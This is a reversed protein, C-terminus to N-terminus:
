RTAIAIATVLGALTSTFALWKSANAAKDVEPKEPVIIECGPEIKPFRRGFLGGKTAATTGNAYLVYVKGKKAREAFGGSNMIYDKAKRKSTFTHAVPNLVSGSVMVTELKSPVLLQDGAKVQLDEV